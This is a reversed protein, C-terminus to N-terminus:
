TPRRHPVQVRARVRRAEAQFLERARRLRSAVTGSPLGLIDAIEIMPLEELEHMVFVARLDMPLTDLVDDLMGRARRQALVDDPLPRPDAIDQGEDLDECRARRERRTALAVRMATGFIFSREAEAKIDALRHSVVMFVRQTADDADAEPVGLRRVSRFVFDINEAVLRDFRARSCEEPMALLADSLNAIDNM